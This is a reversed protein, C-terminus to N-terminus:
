ITLNRIAALIGAQRKYVYHQLYQLDTPNFALELGYNFGQGPSDGKFMVKANGLIIQNNPLALAVAYTTGKELGPYSSVMGIGGESVDKVAVAITHSNGPQIYINVPEKKDPEVRFYKRKQEFVAEPLFATIKGMRCSDVKLDFGFTEDTLNLFGSLTKGKGLQNYLGVFEEPSFNDLVLKTEIEGVMKIIECTVSLTPLDDRFQCNLLLKARKQLLKRFLSRIEDPDQAPKSFTKKQGPEAENSITILEQRKQLFTIFGIVMLNTFRSSDLFIVGQSAYDLLNMQMIESKTYIIIPGEISRDRIHGVIEAFNRFYPLVVIDQPQGGKLLEYVMTKLDLIRSPFEDGRIGLDHADETTIWVKSHQNM